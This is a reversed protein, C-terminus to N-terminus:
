LIIFKQERLNQCNFEATMSLLAIFYANTLRSQIALNTSIRDHLFDSTNCLRITDYYEAREWRELEMRHKSLRKNVRQLLELIATARNLQGLSKLVYM